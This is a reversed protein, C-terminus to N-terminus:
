IEVVLKKIGFKAALELAREKDKETLVYSAQTNNDDLNHIAVSLDALAKSILREFEINPLVPTGLSVLFNAKELVHNYDKM